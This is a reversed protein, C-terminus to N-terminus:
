RKSKERFKKICDDAAGSASAGWKWLLKLLGHEPKFDPEDEEAFKIVRSRWQSYAENNTEMETNDPIFEGDSNIKGKELIATELRDGYYNELDKVSHFTVGSLNQFCTM